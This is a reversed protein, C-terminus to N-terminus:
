KSVEVPIVPSNHTPPLEGAFVSFKLQYKGPKEPAVVELSVLRRLMATELTTALKVAPLSTDKNKFGYGIVPENDRDLQIPQRYENFPQLVVSIHEGPRAKIQKLAPKFQIRSYSYYATDLYYDWVGHITKLSDTVPIGAGPDFVVMAPKGWLQTETDWYNYQSRRSYQSNLSYSLNGTYFMYKSPLQYSNIFVVPRGQAKAAVAATWKKNDHVEPRIEVGPLFNWVLYVRVALVLLLTVPLTYLLWKQTLQKRVVAQHALVMVPTFLMVTWNAEVRGKFTSVLFFGLVGITCFKLAREFANQLPSRFAYYLILWGVVPGFLALQGALYDLSFSIDYAAANREVLHYQLSPFDHTYQWYIHPFFLLTTLLCAVWFKFVKLLNINSLLTFFVLLVGHYKSYFMLAMSLGLLLTNKWSQENLFLKYIWFYVAAFFILPVDPVALMGGVQMAGMAGILLYFLKMDKFAILRATIWLTLTNLIVVLLRVGLENHFIGYGIKILLAIMPPHDFYGWDLHQSYVWYYAEDDWLESFGAQLLGLVLWGLLFLNLYQNKRFFSSSASM